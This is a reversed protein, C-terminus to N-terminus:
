RVTSLADELLWPFSTRRETGGPVGGDIPDLEFFLDASSRFVAARCYNAFDRAGAGAPRSSNCVFCGLICYCAVLISQFCISRAEESLFTCLCILGFWVSRTTEAVAPVGGLKNM